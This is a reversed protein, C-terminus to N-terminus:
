RCASSSRVGQRRQPPRCDRAQIPLAPRCRLHPRRAHRMQREDCQAGVMQNRTSRAPSSRAPCSRPSHCGDRRSVSSIRILQCRSITAMPSFSSGFTPCITLSYKSSRHLVTVYLPIMPYINSHLVVHYMSDTTDRLLSNELDCASRRDSVGRKSSPRRCDGFHTVICTQSRDRKAGLQRSGDHYNVLSVGVRM